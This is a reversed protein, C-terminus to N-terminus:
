RLGSEPGSTALPVSVLPVGDRDRREARRVHVLEVRRAAEDAHVVRAEHRVAVIGEALRHAAADVVGEVPEVDVPLVDAVLVGALARLAGRTDIRVEGDPARPLPVPLAEDRERRLGE